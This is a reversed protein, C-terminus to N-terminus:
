KAGTLIMDERIAGASAVGQQWAPRLRKGRSHVGAEHCLHQESGATGTGPNLPSSRCLEERSPVRESLEGQQSHCNLICDGRTERKSLSFTCLKYLRGSAYKGIKILPDKEPSHKPGTKM